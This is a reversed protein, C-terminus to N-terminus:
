SVAILANVTNSSGFVLVPAALPLVKRTWGLPVTHSFEMAAVLDNSELRRSLLEGDKFNGGADLRTPRSVRIPHRYRAVALNPKDFIGHILHTSDIRHRSFDIFELNGHFVRDRALSAHIRSAVNPDTKVAGALEHLDVILRSLHRNVRRRSLVRADIRDLSIRLAIQNPEALLMDVLHSAEIGLRFLERLKRQRAGLRIRAPDFDIRVIRVADPPRSVQRSPHAVNFEQLLIAPEM